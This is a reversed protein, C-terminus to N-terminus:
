PSEKGTAPRVHVEADRVETIVVEAGVPISEEDTTALIDVAQGKLSVRVKGSRGRACAVIVRGVAGQAEHFGAEGSVAADALSRFTM